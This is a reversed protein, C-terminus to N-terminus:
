RQCLYEVIRMAGRSMDLLTLMKAYIKSVKGHIIIIIDNTVQSMMIQLQVQSKFCSFLHCPSSTGGGDDDYMLM